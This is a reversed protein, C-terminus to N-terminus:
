PWIDRKISSLSMGTIIGAGALTLKGQLIRTDPRPKRVMYSTICKKCMRSAEGVYEPLVGSPFQLCLSFEIASPQLERDVSLTIGNHRKQFRRKLSLHKMRRM